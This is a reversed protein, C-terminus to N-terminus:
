VENWIESADAWGSMNWIGNEEEEEEEEKKKEILSKKKEELERESQRM